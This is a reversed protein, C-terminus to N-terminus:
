TEACAPVHQRGVVLVVGAAVAEAALVSSSSSSSPVCLVALLVGAVWEAEEGGVVCGGM